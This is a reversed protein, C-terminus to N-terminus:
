RLMLTDVTVKLTDSDMTNLRRALAQGVHEQVDTVQLYDVAKYLEYLSATSLCETIDNWKTASTGLLEYVCKFTDDKVIDLLIREERDYSEEFLFSLVKIRMGIDSSIMWEKSPKGDENTTILVLKM